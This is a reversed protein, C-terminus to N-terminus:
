GKHEDSYAIPHISAGRGGGRSDEKAARRIDAADTAETFRAVVTGDTRCLSVVCPDGVLDLRYGPPLLLADFDRM